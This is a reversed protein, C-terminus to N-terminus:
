QVRNIADLGWRRVFLDRNFTEAESNNQFTGLTWGPHEHLIVVDDTRVPEFGNSRLKMWYDSDDWYFRYFGEYYGPKGFDSYGPVTGVSKQYVEKSYCWMHAHFSKNLGGVVTPSVVQNDRCLNTLKGKQLVVDDNSVIIYDGTAQSLGTNIKVALNENKEDIIILEDYQGELSRLCADLKDGVRMTPIVLSIRM